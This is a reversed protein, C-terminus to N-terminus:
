LSALGGRQRILALPALFKQLAKLREAQAGARTPRTDKGVGAKQYGIFGGSALSFPAPM